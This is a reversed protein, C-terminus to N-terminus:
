SPFPVDVDAVDVAREREGGRSVVSSSPLVITRLDVANAAPGRPQRIGATLGSAITARAERDGLGINLAQQLLLAEVSAEDLGGAGIIQGLCFAGRNLSSNRSGVPAGALGALEREL